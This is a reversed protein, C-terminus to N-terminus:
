RDPPPFSLLLFHPFRRLGLIGAVFEQTSSGKIESGGRPRTAPSASPKRRTLGSRGTTAGWCSRFTPSAARGLREAEVAAYRRRDKESLTGFFNVMRREVDAHYLGM